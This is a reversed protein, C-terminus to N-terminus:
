RLVSFTLLEVGCDHSGLFPALFLGGLGCVFLDLGSAWNCFVFRVGLSLFGSGQM